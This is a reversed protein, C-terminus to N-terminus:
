QILPPRLGANKCGGGGEKPKGRKGANGWKWCRHRDPMKATNNGRSSLLVAIVFKRGVVLEKEFLRPQQSKLLWKHAIMIAVRYRRRILAGPMVGIDEAFTRFEKWYM